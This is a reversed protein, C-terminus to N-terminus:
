KKSNTIKCSIYLLHIYSMEKVKRVLDILQQNLEMGAVVDELKYIIIRPDDKTIMEIRNLISWEFETLYPRDAKMANLLYHLSSIVNKTFNDQQKFIGVQRLTDILPAPFIMSVKISDGEKYKAM